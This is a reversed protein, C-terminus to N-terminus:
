NLGETGHSHQTMGMAWPTCVSNASGTTEGAEIPQAQVIGTIQEAFNLTFPGLSKRDEKIGNVAKELFNFYFLTNILLRMCFSSFM